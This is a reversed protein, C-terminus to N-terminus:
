YLLLCQGVNFWYRFDPRLPIQSLMITPKPAPLALSPNIQANTNRVVQNVLNFSVFNLANVIYNEAFLFTVTLLGNWLFSVIQQKHQSGIVVNAEVFHLIFFKCRQLVVWFKVYCVNSYENSNYLSMEFHLIQMTAACGLITIAIKCLLCQYILWEWINPFTSYPKGAFIQPRTPHVSISEQYGLNYSLAM